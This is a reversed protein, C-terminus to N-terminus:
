AAAQSVIWQYTQRLGEALDVEPKWGWQKGIKGPDVASRQLEGARAPANKVPVNRGTAKLMTSVLDNVSIEKGTGVNFAASDISTRKPLPGTAARVNARAVDGVFVYDRTQTGDGFVTVPDGRLIRSGFIAVVGAEGETNQRPGYVNAYRLAVAYQARADGEAAAQRLPLPGLDPPPLPLSAPITSPLPAAASEAAQGGLSPDEVSFVVGPPLAPGDNPKLSAPQAQPMAEDSAAPRYSSKAVDTFNRMEGTEDSANGSPVIKWGQAGESSSPTAPTGPAAEGQGPASENAGPAPQGDGPTSPVPASQGAAPPAIEPEPKSRLRGYLLLASIALLVAAFIILFSRKRRLPLEAGPSAESEAPVRRVRAGSSAREEAKLAAAQAARRAAAVLDDPTEYEADEDTTKGRPRRPPQADLDFPKEEPQGRKARGFSPAFEADELDAIATALRNKPMSPAPEGEGSKLKEGAEARMEATPQQGVIGPLPALDRM